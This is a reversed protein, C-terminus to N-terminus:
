PEGKLDYLLFPNFILQQDKARLIADIQCLRDKSFTRHTYFLPEKRDGFAKNFLRRAFGHGQFAGKTFVYHLVDPEYVLYSFIINPEDKMCAVLVASEPKSLVRDIVQRYNDFFISNRCFTGLSSYYRYSSLWTKYIFDLDGPVASRIAIETNNKANEM